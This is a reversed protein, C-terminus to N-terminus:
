GIVNRSDSSTSTAHATAARSRRLSDMHSANTFTASIQISTSPTRAFAYHATGCWRTLPHAPERHLDIRVDRREVASECTIAAVEETASVLMCSTGLRRDFHVSSRTTCSIRASWWSPS